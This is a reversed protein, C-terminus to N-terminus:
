TTLSSPMNQPKVNQPFPHAHIPSQKPKPPPPLPLRLPSMLPLNLPRGLPIQNPHHQELLVNPMPSNLALNSLPFPQQLPQLPPLLFPLSPHNHLSAPPPADVPRSPKFTCLLPIQDEQPGEITNIHHHSCFTIYKTLFKEFAPLNTFASVNTITQYFHAAADKTCAQTAAKTHSRWSDTLLTLHAPDISLTEPWNNSRFLQGIFGPFEDFLFPPLNDAGM